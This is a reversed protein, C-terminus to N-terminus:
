TQVVSAGIVVKPRFKFLESEIWSEENSLGSIDRAFHAEYRQGYLVGRSLNGFPTVARHFALGFRCNVLCMVAGIAANLNNGAFDSKPRIVYIGGSHVPRRTRFQVRHEM